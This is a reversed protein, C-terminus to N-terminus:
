MPDVDLSWGRGRPLGDAVRHLDTGKLTVEFRFEDKLRYVFAPSPGLVEIDGLNLLGITASLHEAATQAERAARAEDRHGYTTVILEAFPPFRYSRRVELEERFFGRYDHYQAHKIAPHDPTYTQIFVRSAASGRGARGAVQTLLSFTRESSRYDPFHLSTDANVVGVTTVLPLDLGKAVVQTGVLVDAAGSLMQDFVLDAADPTKMVDRDLRLVRAGPFLTRVEQEIRETGIGFSKIYRSGCAPCRKPLPETSGCYHCQLRNLAAHYVLAVSCHPCQRAQGCDRCLVFTALGRRNLFLISQEGRELSSAIAERLPRSLPGFHEARLEKRMDVVTVPPLPRGQARHPLELLHERGSLAAAYTAVSPTASGLVLVSRTRRALWRAVTPAHYRPIREQKFASSEEEDILVLRLRPLPAFVAARPGIVIDAEGRRIRWWEAAREAETLASHLVALRGPFRAGFRGVTQPTLAIDPVLVLGQGGTALVQELLALYVETKGSGTVGHLLFVASEQRTLAVAIRERAAEQAPELAVAASSGVEGAQRLIRSQRRRKVSRKVVARVRPPVVARIVEDLPVLYHAAVFGALEVLVAPLVPEADILAEIPKLELVGPGQDLAYVFGTVTRKGFPVRVRHGVEILGTLAEPVAYDFLGSLSGVRAEVAVQAVSRLGTEPAL